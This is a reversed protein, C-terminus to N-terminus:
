TSRASAAGRRSRSPWSSRAARARASRPSGSGPARRTRHRPSPRASHRCSKWRAVTFSRRVESALQADDAPISRSLVITSGRLLLLDARNNARHIWAVRQQPDARVLAPLDHTAATLSVPRLKADEAFKLAADVVRRDAATILVRKVEAAGPDAEPPLPAFDFAADDAPFPLHRELEFRVMDRLEGAVPPLDIPKVTVTARALGIAM